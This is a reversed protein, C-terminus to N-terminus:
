VWQFAVWLKDLSRRAHSCRRGQKIETHPRLTPGSSSSQSQQQDHPLRNPDVYPQQRRLEGLLFFRARVHGFSYTHLGIYQVKRNIFNNKTQKGFAFTTNLYNPMNPRFSANKHFHTLLILCLLFFPTSVRVSWCSVRKFVKFFVSVRM